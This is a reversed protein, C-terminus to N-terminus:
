FTKGNTVKHFAAAIYDLNKTNLGCISIRADGTMYIGHVARLEEVMEKTLGTYAFMGIQDTIHKWSHTSGHDKLKQVIGTRMDAMRNSMIKLESHWEATLAPDSLVTDVLRAGHIPPNSYIPRALQKVRSMVIDTEKPSQTILSLAGAREGYIGFNKAFSQCLMIRDWEQVFLNLAYADKKLDGSAFGQYASDFLVFHHKRKVLELIKKWQEPNPDVGTPNHACM